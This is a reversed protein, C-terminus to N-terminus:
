ASAAEEIELVRYAARRAVVQYRQDLIGPAVDGGREAGRHGLAVESGKGREVAGGEPARCRDKGSLAVALDDADEGPQPPAVALRLVKRVNRPDPAEDLLIQAVRRQRRDGGPKIGM